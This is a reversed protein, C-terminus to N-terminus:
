RAAQTTAVADHLLEVEAAPALPAAAAVPETKDPVKLYKHDICLKVIESAVSGAAGGGSGGYEVMVAFAVQPKDSPAFGMFWSHHPRDSQRGTARYWRAEPNPSEYSSLELLKMVPKGKADLVLKGTKPDREKVQIWAAEATGTKGSVSVEKRNADGGSGAKSHVVRYMGERVAALAEPPIGLDVRDAAQTTPPVYGQGGKDYNQRLLKPRVWVGGRAITAVVNAMQLPTAAVPGQGIGASWTSTMADAGTLTRKDMDPVRGVAEAIGVYTREGLGFKRYWDSLKYPGLAHAVSEFYPNCSRELADALTLFGTPHRADYPVPHHAVTPCPLLKCDPKCLVKHFMSNVWCRGRRYYRGNVVM